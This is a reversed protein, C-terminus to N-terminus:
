SSDKLRELQFEQHLVGLVNQIEERMVIFSINCNSTGQSSAIIQFKEKWLAAFARIAIHSLDRLDEVVVTVLAVDNEFGIECPQHRDYDSAFENPLVDLIRDVASSRVVLGCEGACNAHMTLVVDAGAATVVSVARRLAGTVEANGSGSMRILSIGNMAALAMIGGQRHSGEPTIETGPREPAFTNRIWVPIRRQIVPHLSKPHLVRAGFHALVAAQRYSIQPITCAEPVLRPDATLFGDVDTWIIVERADLAAGLISASYDSGGRGLTTLTGEVTAGLFGTVVPVTGQRLMPRLRVECRERTLELLPNAAGYHADTVLCERADIAESSVGRETLATAILPACLREGLSAIMDCAEPTLNRTRLAERVVAEGELLCELIKRSFRDRESGSHILASATSEHRERLRKFIRSVAQSDGAASRVGAEILLDTVGSM